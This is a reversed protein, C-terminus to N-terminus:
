KKSNHLKTHDGHKLCDLNEIRNDLKDLNKHHIEYGKPIPGYNKIWVVNQESMYQGNYTIWRYGRYIHGEPYKVLSKSIQLKTKLSHRFGIKLDTNTRAKWGLKKFLSYIPGVSIDLYKAIKRYDLKDEYYLKKILEIDIEKKNWPIHGKQPAM